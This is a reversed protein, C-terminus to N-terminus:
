ERGIVERNSAESFAKKLARQVTRQSVRFIEALERIGKGETTYMRAM